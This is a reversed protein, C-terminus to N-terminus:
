ALKSSIVSPLTRRRLPSAGRWREDRQVVRVNRCSVPRPLRRRLRHRLCTIPRACGPELFRIIRARWIRHGTVDTWNVNDGHLPTRFSCRLFRPPATFPPKVSSAAKTRYPVTGSAMHAGARRRAAGDALMGGHWLAAYALLPRWPLVWVAGASGEIDPPSSSLFLLTLYASDAHNLTAPATLLGRFLHNCSRLLLPTAYTDLSAGALGALRAAVANAVTRATAPFALRGRGSDVGCLRRGDCFWAHRSAV